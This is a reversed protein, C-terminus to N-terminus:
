VTHAQLPQHNQFTWLENLFCIFASKTPREDVGKRSGAASLSPLQPCIRFGCLMAGGLPPSLCDGGVGPPHGSVEPDSSNTM